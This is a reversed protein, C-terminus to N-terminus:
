RTYGHQEIGADNENDDAGDCGGRDKGDVGVIPLM